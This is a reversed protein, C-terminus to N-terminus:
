SGVICESLDVIIPSGHKEEEDSMELKNQKTEEQPEEEENM